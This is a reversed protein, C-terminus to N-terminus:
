VAAFAAHYRVLGRRGELAGARLEQAMFAEDPVDYECRLGFASAPRFGFRPYYASHGLVVVGDVGMARCAELGAPVLRSGIGERQRTPTVAMPALGMIGSWGDRDLTVPSFAIHGLVRGAAEFVLSVFPDAQRRLVDVLDAEGPGDFAALNIERIAALDSLTEPRVVGEIM